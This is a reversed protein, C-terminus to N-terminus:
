SLNARLWSVYRDLMEKARWFDQLQRYAAALAITDFFFDPNGVIHPDLRILDKYDQIALERLHGADGIAEGSLPPPLTKVMDEYQKGEIKKETDLINALAAYALARLAYPIAKQPNLRIAEGYDAIAFEYMRIFHQSAGRSVYADADNPDCRVITCVSTSGELIVVM